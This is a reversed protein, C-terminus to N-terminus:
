ALMLLQEISAKFNRSHSIFYLKKVLECQCSRYLMTLIKFLAPVKWPLRIFFTISVYYNIRLLEVDFPYKMEMCFHPFNSSEGVIVKILQEHLGFEFHAISPAMSVWLWDSVVCNSDVFFDSFFLPCLTLYNNTGWVTISFKLLHCLKLPCYCYYLMWDWFACQLVSSSNAAGRINSNHDTPKNKV